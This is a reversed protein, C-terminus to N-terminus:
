SDPAKFGMLYKVSRLCLALNEPPGVNLNLLQKGKACLARVTNYSRVNISQFM